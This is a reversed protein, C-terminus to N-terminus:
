TLFVIFSYACSMSWRKQAVPVGREPTGTDLTGRTREHQRQATKATTPAGANKKDNNFIATTVVVSRGYKVHDLDCFVRLM